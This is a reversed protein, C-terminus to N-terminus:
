PNQSCEKKISALFRDQSQNTANRTFADIHRGNEMLWFEKPQEAAKYLAKGHKIPVIRDEAGHIVILPTPSIESIRQGPAFRDSLLVSALWQFPWLIISRRMVDKAMAQYSLFTSEVAIFCINPPAQNKDQLDILTRLAVAGGLSQGFLIMPIEPKKKALYEIAKKGSEVTNKPSPRGESQGYGPYDFIFVDVDYELIWYLAYFHSSINEANGHFFVIQAKPSSKEDSSKTQFHWAHIKEGTELQLYVDKPSPSLNEPSVYVDRSPFYLLHTCSALFTIALAVLFPSTM